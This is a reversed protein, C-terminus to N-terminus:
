KEQRVKSYKEYFTIFEILTRPYMPNPDLTFPDYGLLLELRTILIAFGLSDIGTELLVSEDSIQASDFDQNEHKLLDFIEILIVERISQM